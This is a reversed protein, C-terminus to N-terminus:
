PSADKSPASKQAARAGGDRKRKEVRHPGRQSTGDFRHAPQANHVHRVADDHVLPRRRLRPRIELEGANQLRKLREAAVDRHDRAQLVVGRVFRLAAPVGFSGATEKRAGRRFIRCAGVNM